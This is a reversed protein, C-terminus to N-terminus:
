TAAMGVIPKALPKGGMSGYFQANGFTFIGGDAAVEWYSASPAQALYTFTAGSTAASTGSPTTVTVVATGSGPPSVATLTSASTVKFSTAAVSGFHVATAGTFDAGSVKVTTGGLSSGSSPDLGSVSPASSVASAFVTGTLQSISPTSTSTLTFSVCPPTGSTVTPGPDGVVPEWQTGTYWDLGAGANPSCVKSSLSTFSSGSSAEIDFFSTGASSFPKSTVPDATYQSVTVAGVGTADVVVTTHTTPDTSTVNGTSGTSTTSSGSASATTTSPAAPPTTSPPPATSRVQCASNTCWSTYSVHTSVPVGSGSAVPGPGTTSGWWNDRATVSTTGTATDNLHAVGYSSIDSGTAATATSALSNDSSVITAADSDAAYPPTGTWKATNNLYVPDAGVYVDSVFGSVSNARVTNGTGDWVLVGDVPAHAISTVTHISGTFSVSKTTAVTNIGSITNGAITNNDSPGNPSAFNEGVTIGASGATVANNIVSCGSAGQINVGNDDRLLQNGTISCTASAAQPDLWIAGVSWPSQFTSITNGHVALSSLGGAAIGFQAAWTTTSVRNGILTSTAVTARLNGPTTAFLGVYVHGADTKIIDHSLNVSKVSSTTVSADIGNDSTTGKSSASQLSEVTDGTLTGSTNVLAIGAVPAVYTAISAGTVTVNDVSVKAAPADVGIIAHTTGYHTSNTSLFPGTAPQTVNGTLTTPAIIAPTGASPGTITLATMTTSPNVTVQTTYTGAALTITVAGSSAEAKTVGEDLTCKATSTCTTGSGAPAVFLSTVVTATVATGTYNIQFHYTTPTSGGCGASGPNGAAIVQGNGILAGGVQSFKGSVSTSTGTTQVLTLTQGPNLSANCATSLSLQAGDLAVDGTASLEPYTTGATTASYASPLTIVSTSDFTAAGHVDLAGQDSSVSSAPYTPPLFGVQVNGGTTTLPGVTGTAALYADKVSVSKGNTGNLSSGHPLIVNGNATARVGSDGSVNGAISVTGVENDGSLTINGPVSAAGSGVAALDIRLSHTGTVGGALIPGYGTVQWTQTAGLTIPVGIVNTGSSRTSSSVSESSTLGGSGLTIKEGTIDYARPKTSTTSTPTAISLSSPALTSINNTSTYCVTTSTCTSLVPFSLADTGSPAAPTWNADATWATASGGGTWTATATSPTAGAPAASFLAGALTGALLVVPMLSRRLSRRRHPASGDEVRGVQVAGFRAEHGSGM